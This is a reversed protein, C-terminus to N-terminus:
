ISLDMPKVREEGIVRPNWTRRDGLWRGGGISPSCHKTASPNLIMHYINKLHVCRSVDGERRCGMFGFRLPLTVLFRGVAIGMIRMWRAWSILIIAGTM